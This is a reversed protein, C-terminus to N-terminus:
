QNMSDHSSKCTSETCANPSPQQINQPSPTGAALVAVCVTHADKGPAGAKEPAWIPGHMAEEQLATHSLM